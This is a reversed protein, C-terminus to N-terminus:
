ASLRADPLSENPLLPDGHVLAPDLEVESPRETTQRQRLLAPAPLDRHIAEIDYRFFGRYYRSFWTTMDISEGNLLHRYHEDQVQQGSIADFVQPKGQEIRVYNANDFCWSGSNVYQRGTALHVVGPQHSHGLLLTEWRSQNLLYSSAEEFIAGLDGIEGRAWFNDLAHWYDIAETKGLRQWLSGYTHVLRTWYFVLRHAVCNVWNHYDRLPQRIPNGFTREILSHLNASFSTHQGDAWHLDFQHGHAVCIHDGVAISDTFFFEPFGRRLDEADEHNGPIYYAPCRGALRRLAAFVRAHAKEIRLRDHTAWYDVIDGNLIVADANLLEREIIAVFLQDKDGFQDSRTGDALHLDSIVLVRSSAPLTVSPDIVQPSRTTRAKM